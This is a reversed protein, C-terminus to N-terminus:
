GKREHAEVADILFRQLVPLLLPAVGRQNAATDLAPLPGGGSRLLRFRWRSVDLGLARTDGEGLAAALVTSFQPEEPWKGAPFGRGEPGGTLPHLWARLREELRRRVHEQPVFGDDPSAVIDVPLEVPTMVEVVTGLPARAELAEALWGLRAPSFIAGPAPVVCVRVRWSAYPDPAVEVRAIGPDQGLAIRRFDAATVARGGSRWEARLRRRLEEGSEPDFGGDAPLPQLVRRIGPLAGELVGLSGAPLNGRAGHTLVLRPVRVLAGGARAPGLDLVYGELPTRRLRFRPEERSDEPPLAAAVPAAPDPDRPAEATSVSSGEPVAAPPAEAPLGAPASAETPRSSGQRDLQLTEWAGDRLVELTEFPEPHGELSGPKLSGRGRADLELDLVRNQLVLQQRAQAAHPLVARVVPPDLYAGAVWRARIWFLREGFREQPSWEEPLSWSTCGSRTLASTEDRVALPRFGRGSSCEWELQPQRAGDAGAWSVPHARGALAWYVSGPVPREWGLYVAPDWAEPSEVPVVRQATISHDEWREGGQSFLRALLRPFTLDRPLPDATIWRPQTFTTRKGSDLSVRLWPLSVGDLRQEALDPLPGNLHLHVVKRAGVQVEELQVGLARWGTATSLEWDGEWLGQPSGPWELTLTSPRDRLHVLVRDGLYLYRDIATRGGFLAIPEANWGTQPYPFLETSRDGATSIVRLLRAGSVHTDSVIEFALRSEGDRRPASIVTGAPVLVADEVDPAAELVIPASAGSGWRLDEGLAELARPWIRAEAGEVSKELEALAEAFVELLVWAPDEAGRSAIGPARRRVRDKLVGLWREAGRADSSPLEPRRSFSM